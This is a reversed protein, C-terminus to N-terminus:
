YKDGLKKFNYGQSSQLKKSANAESNKDMKANRMGIEESKDEM